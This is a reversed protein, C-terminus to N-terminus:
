LKSEPVRNKQCYDLVQKLGKYLKPYSKDTMYGKRVFVSFVPSEAFEIFDVLKFVPLAEFGTFSYDEGAATTINRVVSETPNKVTVYPIRVKKTRKKNDLRFAM